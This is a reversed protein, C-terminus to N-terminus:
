PDELVMRGAIVETWGTRTGIGECGTGPGDELSSPAFGMAYAEKNPLAMPSCTGGPKQVFSVCSFFLSPQLDTCMDSPGPLKQESTLETPHIAHIIYDVHM